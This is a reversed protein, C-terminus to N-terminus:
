GDNGEAARSEGRPRLRYRLFLHDCSRRISRLEAWPATAASFATGEVLGLRPAGPTRGAVQPAVTLFLEDVLGASLLGGLLHPGGECLVLRDGCRRAIEVLMGAPVERADPAVEIRVNGLPRAARLRRAGNSTTVVIVPVDPASLGPHDLDLDGSATVVITTPQPAPIGLRRRWEAFHAASPPHVHRATWEHGPAARVTGAGVIVVDAAARLLGMVFRDPEFFGSVEGGGSSGDTALAVVGDITTVFNAVVTPRDPRVPFRLEAGYSMRLADPFASGLADHDDAEWLPELGTGTMEWTEAARMTSM